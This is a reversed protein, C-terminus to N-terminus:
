VLGKMEGPTGGVETTSRVHMEYFEEPTDAPVLAEKVAGPKTFFKTFQEGNIASIRTKGDRM